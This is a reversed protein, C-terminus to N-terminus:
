CNKLVDEKNKKYPQKKTKKKKLRNIENKFEKMSLKVINIGIDGSILKFYFSSLPEYKTFDFYMNDGSRYVLKSFDTKSGEKDELKKFTKKPVDKDIREDKVEQSYIYKLLPPKINNKTIIKTQIEKQDEIAKLQEEYKDEIYKERKLLGEKKDEEKM